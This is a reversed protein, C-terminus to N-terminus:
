KQRKVETTSPTPNSGVYSRLGDPKCGSAMLWEVVGAEEFLLGMKKVARTAYVGYGTLRDRNLDYVSVPMKASLENKVCAIQFNRSLKIFKRKAMREKVPEALENFVSAWLNLRFSAGRLCLRFLSFM